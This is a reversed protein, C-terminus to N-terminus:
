CRQIKLLFVFTSFTLKISISNMKILLFIIQIQVAKLYDADDEAVIIKGIFEDKEIIKQDFFEIKKEDKRM